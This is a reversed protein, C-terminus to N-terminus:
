REPEPAEPKPPITIGFKKLLDEEEVNMRFPPSALAAPKFEALKNAQAVVAPMDVQKYAERAKKSKEFYNQVELRRLAKDIAVANPNSRKIERKAEITAVLRKLKSRDASTNVEQNFQRLSSELMYRLYVSTRGTVELIQKTSDEWGEPKARLLLAYTLLTNFDSPKAESSMHEFLAGLKRSGVEDVARNVLARPIASAVLAAQTEEDAQAYGPWNMHNYFGVNNWIFFRRTAIIPAFLFGIQMAIHYGKYVGRMARAKLDRNLKQSDRLAAILEFQLYSVSRHFGTLERIVVNQDSTRSEAIISRKLKDVESGAAPGSALKQEVAGWLKTKETRSVRWELHEYPDFGSLEYQEEFSNTAEDLREVLDTVLATNDKSSGAIIEVLSELSLHHGEKLFRALEAPRDSVYKGVFYSYFLKYKLFFNNGIKIVLRSAELDELLSSHDFWILSDRMEKVCFNDWESKNFNPRGNNFLSFVFGGVVDLKNEANFSDRYLDSPRHLMDRIFRDMIHLRNLPTFSGERHIVSLYMIVNSPTLPICLELLDHYTKEVAASILDGDFTDYLQNALGRVDARNLYSLGYSQVSVGLGLDELNTIENTRARSIIIVRNFVKLGFIEKITREHSASDFADIVLVSKKASSSAERQFLKDEIIKKKHVGIKPAERYFAEYGHDILDVILKRALTTGGAELPATIITHDAATVIESLGVELQEIGDGSSVRPASLIRPEAYLAQGNPSVFLGNQFEAEAAARATQSSPTSVPNREPEGAKGSADALASLIKLMDGHDESGDASVSIKYFVPNVRYKKSFQRRLMPTMPEADRRGILAVHQNDSAIGRLVGEALRTLVPDRFGFGVVFLHRNRWLEEVFSKNEANSYYRDYDDATLIMNEPANSTGHWHIIPYQQDPSSHELVWRRLEFKDESRIVTPMRQFQRVFATSLGDDYNLTFIGQVPLKVLVEHNPTCQDDLRFSSGLYSRFKASTFNDELTSALELPDETVMQRLLPEDEPQALGEVLGRQILDSLLGGWSPALPISVGSGVFAVLRGSLVESKLAELAQRNGPFLDENVLNELM